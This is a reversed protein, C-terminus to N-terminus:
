KNPLKCQYTWVESGVQGGANLTCRIDVVADSQAKLSLSFIVRWSKGIENKFVQVHSVEASEGAKVDAKPIEGALPLTQNPEFDIVFQRKEPDGPDRGIRTQLVKCLAFRAEPRLAWHLTYAFRFEEGPRPKEKPNWFAVINDNGEFNTPLEILHVEGEGWNGRPEVWVSPTQHYLNFIDQYNSFERDRQLLGFGRVNKTPFIQHQIASPNHLPRWILEDNEARILLGDSDHVEPRYDDAKIESNEGFWYMSTLPALGVTKFDAGQRMLVVGTIDAFTTEGPRILFEYAGACSASDLLGFVHLSEKPKEPKELWWEVFVPFEEKVGAEGSNFAM